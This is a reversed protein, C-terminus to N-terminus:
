ASAGRQKKSKEGGGQPHTKKKLAEQPDNSIEDEAFEGERGRGACARCPSVNNVIDKLDNELSKNCM